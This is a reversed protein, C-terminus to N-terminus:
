PFLFGRLSDILSSNVSFPEEWSWMSRIVDITMMGCLALLMLCLTLFMVQWGTFQIEQRPVTATQSFGAAAPMATGAPAGGAGLLDDAEEQEEFADLAIVQSSDDEDDSGDDAAMPTLEFEGPEADDAVLGAAEGFDIGSAVASGGLDLAADDLSLGSDAPALNIGSDASSLTLDSGDGLVFDDDDDDDLELASLGTLGAGSAKSEDGVNIESGSLSLEEDDDASEINSLGGLGGSSSAALEYDDDLDLELDSTEPSKQQAQDSAAQQAAAVDEPQLIRSSEAELDIGLDEVDDFDVSADESSPLEGTASADSDLDELDALKVDSKPAPNSKSTVSSDEDALELDLADDLESRGIITSPPRDSDGLEAESLLISEPDDGSESELELDLDSSGTEAAAPTEEVATADSLSPDAPQDDEEDLDIALDASSGTSLDLELDDEAEDDVDLSAFSADDDDDSLDLGLLDDSKSADESGTEDDLSKDDDLMLSDLDLNIGSEEAEVAPVGETAMRDIEETRFKWSAGDRYARLKGEERLANLHDHTIGLQEAAEELKIFKPDM